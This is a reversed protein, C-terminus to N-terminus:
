SRHAEWARNASFNAWPGLDGQEAKEGAAISERALQSLRVLPSYGAWMHYSRVTQDVATATPIWHGAEVSSLREADTLSHKCAPCQFHASDPNEQPFRVDEWRLEHEDGCAPCPVLFM